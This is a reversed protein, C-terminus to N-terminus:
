RHVSIWLHTCVCVCLWCRCVCGAMIVMQPTSAAAQVHDGRLQRIKRCLQSGGGRRGRFVECRWAEGERSGTRDKLAEGSGSGVHGKEQKRERGNERERGTRDIVAERKVGTPPTHTHTHTHLLSFSPCFSVM